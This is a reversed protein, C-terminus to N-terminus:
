EDSQKQILFVNLTSFSLIGIWFIPKFALEIQLCAIIFTVLLLFPGGYVLGLWIAQHWRMDRGKAQQKLFYVKMGSTIIVLLCIGFIAFAVKVPFGGFYGFHTRYVSDAVQQGVTGDASGVTDIFEGDGNFNYKEAYILRDMHEAMIQLYQGQTGPDHLIVYIPPHEPYHVAMYDLAKDIRAIPAQELNVEPEAGFVPAFVAEFDGDYKVTGVFLASLTALGIMAGTLSNSIHFPATWVSLRNHLDVKEMQESRDGRFRFADKFVKPHAVLGTVSMAFLFVGFIAVVLMGFSTPLTLYYHLDILFENWPTHAKVSVTGDANLYSELNDTEVIARPNKVTPLRLFLHKTEPDMLMGNHAAKYAAGAQMERVVPEGQQEILLLEDKFLSITGSLCIIYLVASIFLGIVSHARLGKKALPEIKM